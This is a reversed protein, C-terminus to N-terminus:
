GETFYVFSNKPVEYGRSETMPILIIKEKEILNQVELQSGIKSSLINGLSTDLLKDNKNGPLFGLRVAGLAPFPNTFIVIRDIKEKELEQFAYALAILTKGSGAKGTCFTLQNRVLSDMYAIQFPDDNKPEIDGFQYSRFTTRKIPELKTGTWLYPPLIKNNNKIFVYENSYFHTVDIITDIKEKQYFRALDNNNLDIIM